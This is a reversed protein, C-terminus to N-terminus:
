HRSLLKSLAVFLDFVRIGEFQGLKANILFSARKAVYGGFVWIRFARVAIRRSALEIAAIAVPWSCM